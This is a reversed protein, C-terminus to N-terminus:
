PLTSLLLRASTETALTYAGLAAPILVTQGLGFAVSEGAWHIVASGHVSTLCHFRRSGTDLTAQRPNIGGLRFIRTHFYPTRVIDSELGDEIPVHEIQPLSALNAVQLGKEIHLPRPKGDLGMRGWDYLRYTTDSSQQIEYVLLGPGLAHITGAPMYVVDGARMEAYVLLSEITGQEIASAVQERELEPKVGIVLRAGPESHVIYWAENKGRPENELARAQEDNPHDQISLWDNADIFKALLPFGATPDIDPGILAAGYQALVDGLTREALAGSVVRSSDHLEWAEGYPADAALTKGLHEALRRGGWPKTHLSPELLLPYLETM